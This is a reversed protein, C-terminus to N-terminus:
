ALKPHLQPAGTLMTIPRMTGYLVPYNYNREAVM